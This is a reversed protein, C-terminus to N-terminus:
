PKPTQQSNTTLVSYERSLSPTLCVQKQIKIFETLLFAHEISNDTYTGWSYPEPANTCVSRIEKLAEYEGECAALALEGQIM